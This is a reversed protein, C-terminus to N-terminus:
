SGSLLYILTANDARIRARGAEASKVSSFISEVAIEIMPLFPKPAAVGAASARSDFKDIM